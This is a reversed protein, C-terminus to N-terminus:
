LLYGILVGWKEQRLKWVFPFIEEYGIEEQFCM